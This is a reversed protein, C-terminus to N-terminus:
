FPVKLYSPGCVWIYILFGKWPYIKDVADTYIYIYIYIYIYTYIYKSDTDGPFYYKLTLLVLLQPDLVQHICLKVRHTLM